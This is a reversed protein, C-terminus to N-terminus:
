QLYFSWKVLFGLATAGLAGFYLAFRSIDLLRNRRAVQCAWWWVVFWVVWRWGPLLVILFFILRALMTVFSEDLSPCDRAYLDQEVRYIFVSFIKTVVLVAVTFVAWPAAVPNGTQYLSHLPACLLIFIWAAADRLLFRLAHQKPGPRCHVTWANNLAYFVGVCALCLAAPVKWVGALPWHLSMWPWTLLGGLVCFLVAQWVVSWVPRRRAYEMFPYNYFLVACLYYAVMLRWFVIM